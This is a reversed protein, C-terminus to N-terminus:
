QECFCCNLDIVLCYTWFRWEMLKLSILCKVGSLKLCALNFLMTKAKSKSNHWSPKIIHIDGPFITMLAFDKLLQLKSSPLLPHVGCFLPTVEQKPLLEFILLIGWSLSETRLTLWFLWIFTHNSLLKSRNWLSTQLTYCFASSSLPKNLKTWHGGCLTFLYTRLRELTLLRLHYEMTGAMLNSVTLHHLRHSWSLGRHPPSQWTRRSVAMRGPLPSAKVFVSSTPVPM